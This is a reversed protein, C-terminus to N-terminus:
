NWHKFEDILRLVDNRRKEFVAFLALIAVGLVIGSVWWVWTQYHDVAAHWIMSLIDLLLFSVGLTLFARVRLSIGALVGCVALAALVVPLVVSDLRAIFMDATSALYITFVGFYRLGSAAEASLHDRNIHESVLVILGLPILWLQPHTLFPIGGHALLSWVGMNGALAAVLGWRFSRHTVAQWAYLVGVMLWILAYRDFRPTLSHLYTLMPVAGPLRTAAFDLLAQPPQAWFAILPLLPLFLGTRRLPEALVPTGLREFWEGLGVGVFAIVMVIIPWFKGAWGTFLEPVNLRVHLFLLVLLGEIAYVYLGRGRESLGLVDRGPLVACRLAYAMM